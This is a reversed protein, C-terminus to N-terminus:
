DKYPYYCPAISLIDYEPCGIKTGDYVDVVQFQRKEIAHKASVRYKIIDGQEINESKKQIEFRRYCNYLDDALNEDIEVYHVGRKDNVVPTLKRCLAFAIMAFLFCMVFLLITLINM